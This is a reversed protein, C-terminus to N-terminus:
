RNNVGHKNMQAVAYDYKPSSTGFKTGAANLMAQWHIWQGSCASNGCAGQYVDRVDPYSYANSTKNNLEYYFNLWDIESGLWNMPCHAHVWQWAGNPNYAQVPVPPSHVLLNGGATSGSHHFEKYYSFWATSHSSHNFLDAAFFHAFGEVQGTTSFEASNLCHSRANPDAVNDCTCIEPFTIAINNSTPVYPAAPIGM